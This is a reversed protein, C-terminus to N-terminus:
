EPMSWVGLPELVDLVQHLLVAGKFPHVQLLRGGGDCAVAAGAGEAQQEHALVVGHHRNEVCGPLVPRFCSEAGGKKGTFLRRRPMRNEARLPVPGKKKGGSTIYQGWYPRVM